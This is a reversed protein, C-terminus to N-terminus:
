TRLENYVYAIGHVETTNLTYSVDSEMWGDGHHSPRQGNGELTYTVSITSQEDKDLTNM